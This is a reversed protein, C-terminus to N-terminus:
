DFVLTIKRLTRRKGWLSLFAELMLDCRRRQYHRRLLERHLGSSGGKELCCHRGLLASKREVLSCPSELWVKCRDDVKAELEDICGKGIVGVSRSRSECAM